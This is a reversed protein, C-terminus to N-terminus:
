GGFPTYAFGNGIIDALGAQNEASESIAALVDATTATKADLLGVWYNLGAQEPQRDLINEYFRAILESNTPAAGYVSAFENSQIFGDAVSALASGKDLVNMWYGLGVTDPTRNFAAEYLRYAQGGNGGIDLAIAGDSFVLREFNALHNVGEEGSNDTVVANSGSTALTFDARKGTYHIVDIGTGGDTHYTGSSSHFRDNGATGIPSINVSFTKEKVDFVDFVKLTFTDVGYYGAAPQYHWASPDAKEGFVVTGHQPSSKLEYKPNFFGDMPKYSGTASGDVALAVTEGLIAFRYPAPDVFTALTGNLTFNSINIDLTSKGIADFLITAFPAGSFPMLSGSMNVSGMGGINGASTSSSASGSFNVKSFEVNAGSYNFALSFTFPGSPLNASHLAVAIQGDATTTQTFTIDSM